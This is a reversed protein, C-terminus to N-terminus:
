CDQVSIWDGRVGMILTMVNAACNLRETLMLQAKTKVLCICMFNFSIKREHENMRSSCIHFLTDKSFNNHFTETDQKLLCLEYRCECHSSTAKIHVPPQAPVLANAALQQSWSSADRVFEKMWCCMRTTTSRLWSNRRSWEIATSTMPLYQLWNNTDLYLDHKCM